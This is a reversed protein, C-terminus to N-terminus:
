RASDSLPQAVCLQPRLLMEAEKAKRYRYVPMEIFRWALYALLLTGPVLILIRWESHMIGNMWSVRPILLETFNHLLFVSYSIQGIRCLIPTELWRGIRGRVGGHLALDVLWIFFFSALTPIYIAYLPPDFPTYTHLAFAAFFLVGCIAGIKALPREFKQGVCVAMLAGAGLQDFSAAPFMLWEMPSLNALLCYLRYLPGLAIMGVIAWHLSKRPWCLVILPLFLYFQELISLSWLHSFRGTWEGTHLMQFNSLFAANMWFTQRAYEVGCLLTVFIVIYYTPMIRLYRQLYFSATARWGSLGDNDMYGRLKLLARTSFYGSMVFFLIVGFGSIALPRTMYHHLMVILIAFARLTDLQPKYKM